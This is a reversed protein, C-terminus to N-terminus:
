SSRSRRRWQDIYVAAILVAGVAVQQWFPRVGLIQFGNALV